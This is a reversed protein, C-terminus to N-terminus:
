NFDLIQDYIFSIIFQKHLTKKRKRIVKSFEKKSLLNKKELLMKDEKTKLYKEYCSSSTHMFFIFTDFRCPRIM